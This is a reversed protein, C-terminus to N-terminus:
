RASSSGGAGGVTMPPVTVHMFMRSPTIRIPHPGDDEPTMDAAVQEIRDLRGGSFALSYMELSEIEKSNGFAVYWLDSPYDAETPRDAIYVPDAIGPYDIKRAERVAEDKPMGPRFTAGYWRLETAKGAEDTRVAHSQCGSLVALAALCAAGMPAATRM